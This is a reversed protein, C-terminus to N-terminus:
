QVKERIQAAINEFWQAVLEPTWGDSSSFHLSQHTGILVGTYYEGTGVNVDIGEDPKCYTTAFTSV